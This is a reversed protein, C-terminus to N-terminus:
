AEPAYYFTCHENAVTPATIKMYVLDSDYYGHSDLVATGDIETYMTGCDAYHYPEGIVVFMKSGCVVNLVTIRYSNVFDNVRRVMTELEPVGNKLTMFTVSLLQTDNSVSENDFTVTCTSYHTVSGSGDGSGGSEAIGEVGFISVGSVINAPVLNSDGEVTVQSLGDYGSDPTVIQESASPTVTKSQLAVAEVTVDSLGDYGEDPTVTQESTAPSVTKSQLVPEATGGAEPLANVKALLEQLRANNDQLTENYSM